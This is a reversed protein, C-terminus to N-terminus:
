PECIQDLTAVGPSQQLRFRSSTLLSWDNTYSVELTDGLGGGARFMQMTRSLYNWSRVQFDSLYVAQRNQCIVLSFQMRPFFPFLFESINQGQDGLFRFVAGAEFSIDQAQSFFVGNFRGPPLPRGVDLTMVAEVSGETVVEGQRVLQGEFRLQQQKELAIQRADEGAAVAVAAVELPIGLLSIRIKNSSQPFHIELVGILPDYVVMQATQGVSSVGAIRATAMLMPLQPLDSDESVEAGKLRRDLKISVMQGEPLKLRLSTDPRALNSGVVSPLFKVVRRAGSAGVILGEQVPVGSSLNMRLELPPGSTRPFSAVLSGAGSDFSTQETAIRVGGFLGVTLAVQLTPQDGESGATPNRKVTVEVQAPVWLNNDSQVLAGYSGSAISLRSVTRQVEDRRQSEESKEKACGVTALALVILPFILRCHKIM